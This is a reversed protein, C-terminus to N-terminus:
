QRIFLPGGRPGEFNKRGDFVPGNNGEMSIPAGNLQHNPSVQSYGAWAMSAQVVPGGANYVFDQASPGNPGVFGYSPPAPPPPGNYNKATQEPRPYNLPVGAPRDSPQESGEKQSMPGNNGAFPPQQRHYQLPQHFQQAYQPQELTMQPTVQTQQPQEPLKQLPVQQFGNQGNSSTGSQQSPKRKDSKVDTSNAQSTEANETIKPIVTPATVPSGNSTQSEIETGNFNDKTAEKLTSLTKAEEGPSIKYAAAEQQPSYALPGKVLPNAPGNPPQFPANPANGYSPPEAQFPLSAPGTPPQFAPNIM